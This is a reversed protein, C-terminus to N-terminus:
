DALRAVVQYQFAQYMFKEAKGLKLLEDVIKSDDESLSGNMSMRDIVYGADDVFMKIIENYTFMHIHTKDLLGYEQYPFDGDLLLKMVAINMLNPVSAAIRGEKNLLKKCYLVAGLPDRLHELVDGFVILDFKVPFDLNRDEINNVSTTAFESAFRLSEGNIDTGYLRANGFIKKLEFLTGGCDCGIELINLERDHEISESIIDVLWENGLINFYHIGFRRELLNQNQGISTMLKERYGDDKTYWFGSGKSVYMRKHDMFERICKETVMNGIDDAEDDFASDRLVDASFLIVGSNLRLVEESENSEIDRSWEMAKDASDWGAYQWNTFSNSVSGVAFADPKEHLVNLMRDIAGILPIHVNDTILIDDKIELGHIVQNFASGITVKEEFFVYTFDTQESAWENMGAEHDMDILVVDPMIAPCFKRLYDVLFITWDFKKDTHILIKM